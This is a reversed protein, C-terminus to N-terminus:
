FPFGPHLYSAACLMSYARVVGHLTTNGLVTDMPMEIVSAFFALYGNACDHLLTEDMAYRLGGMQELKSNLLTNAM